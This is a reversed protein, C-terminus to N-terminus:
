EHNNRFESIASDLDIWEHFHRSTSELCYVSDFKFAPSHILFKATESILRDFDDDESMHLGNPRVSNKASRARCEASTCKLPFLEM